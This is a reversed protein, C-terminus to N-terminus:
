ALVNAPEEVLVDALDFDTELGVGGCARYYDALITLCRQVQEPTLGPAFAIEFSSHVNPESVKLFEVAFLVSRSTEALFVGANLGQM